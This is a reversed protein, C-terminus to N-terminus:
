SEDGGEWFLMDLLEDATLLQDAPYGAAAARELFAAYERHVLDVDGARTAAGWRNLQPVEGVTGDRFEDLLLLATTALREAHDIALLPPRGSRDPETEDEAIEEPGVWQGLAQPVTTGFATRIYHTVETRPAPTTYERERRHLDMWLKCVAASGIVAVHTVLEGHQQALLQAEESRRWGDLYDRIADVLDPDDSIVPEPSSRWVRWMGRPATRGARAFLTPTSLDVGQALARLCWGHEPMALGYPSCVRELEEWIREYADSPWSRDPAVGARPKSRARRDYHLTYRSYVSRDTGLALGARGAEAADRDPLLPPRRNTGVGVAYPPFRRLTEAGRQSWLDDYREAAVTTFADPDLPESKSLILAVVDAIIETLEADDRPTRTLRQCAALLHTAVVESLENPARRIRRRSLESMTGESVARALSCLDKYQDRTAEATARLWAPVGERPHAKAGPNRGRETPWQAIVLGWGVRADDSKRLWPAWTGRWRDWDPAGPQPEARLVSMVLDECTHSRAMAKNGGRSAMAVETNWGYLRLQDEWRDEVSM